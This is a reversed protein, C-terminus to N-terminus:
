TRSLVIHFPEAACCGVESGFVMARHEISKISRPHPYERLEEQYAHMASLKTGLSSSIDVFYNPLFMTHSTRGGWETSSNVYYNLINKVKQEPTPRTAVSVAHYIIRHDLNIDVDSHFFVSDFDGDSIFSSFKSTLAVHDLTDLRMDPLDWQVLDDTGMIRNAEEMQSKKVSYIDPNEAYQASSGDTVILVTVSGGRQRILPITGGVGLVEDDPHAAIVLVKKMELM